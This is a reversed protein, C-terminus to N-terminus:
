IGNKLKWVDVLQSIYDTWAEVPKYDTPIAAEIATNSIMIVDEKSFFSLNFDLYSGSPDMILKLDKPLRMRIDITAGVISIGNIFTQFIDKIKRWTAYDNIGIPDIIKTSINIKLGNAAEVYFSIIEWDLFANPPSVTDISDAATLMFDILQSPQGFSFNM